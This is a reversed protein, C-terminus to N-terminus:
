PGGDDTRRGGNEADETDGHHLPLQWNATGLDCCSPTGSRDVARRGGDDTRREGEEAARRTRQPQSYTTPLRNLNGRQARLSM